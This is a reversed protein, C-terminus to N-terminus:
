HLDTAAKVIETLASPNFANRWDKSHKLFSGVIWGDAKRFQSINQPTIGSGILVPIQVTAKVEDLEEISAPRGTSTGTLIVGDAGFFHAAEATEAISIDSTISHSSHKKKIDALIRISECGLEKRLRLLTGACSDIFGEDAVHSFVFGEVRIFDAGIAQAVSLAAENAGALIQVGIPLQTVKRIEEGVVAMAATIEPGVKMKLYPTDHMNEILIAGFGATELAKAEAVAQQIVHEVSHNSRPTGPLPGVHVMGILCRNLLFSKM